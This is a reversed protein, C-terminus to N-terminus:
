SSTEMTAQILFLGLVLKSLFVHNTESTQNRDFKKHVNELYKQKEVRAEPSLVKSIRLDLVNYM